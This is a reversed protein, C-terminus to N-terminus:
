KSIRKKRPLVATQRCFNRKRTAAKFNCIYTEGMTNWCQISWQHGEICRWTKRITLFNNKPVNSYKDSPQICKLLFFEEAAASAPFGIQWSIWIIQHCNKTTSIAAWFWATFGVAGAICFFVKVKTCAFDFSFFHKEFMSVATALLWYQRHFQAQVFIIVRIYKFPWFNWCCCRM